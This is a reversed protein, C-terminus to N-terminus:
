ETVATLWRPPVIGLVRTKNGFTLKPESGQRVKQGLLLKWAGDHLQSLLYQNRWTQRGMQGWLFVWIGSLPNQSIKLQPHGKVQQLVHGYRQQSRARLLTAFCIYYDTKQLTLGRGVINYVSGWPGRKGNMIGNGVDRESGFVCIKKLWPM